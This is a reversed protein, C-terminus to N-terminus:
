KPEQTPPAGLGPISTIFPIGNTISPLVGNWKAVAEHQVAIEQQKVLLETLSTHQLKQAEAKGRAIIIETDATTRATQQDQNAVVKREVSAEFEDKFKFNTILVQSVHIGFGELRKQLTTEVDSRVEERHIVLDTSTFRSTAKKVADQIAPDIIHTEIKTTDGLTEYINALQKADLQYNLTITTDVKQIDHSTADAELALTNIRVDMAVIGEGNLPNYFHIGEPLINGTPRKWSMVVGRQGTDISACSSLMAAALLGMAALKTPSASRHAEQDIPRQDDERHLGERREPVEHDLGRSTSLM